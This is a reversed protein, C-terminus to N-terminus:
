GGDGPALPVQAYEAFTVAGGSMSGRMLTVHTPSWARGEHTEEGPPASPGGAVRASGLVLESRFSRRDLFFRQSAAVANVNLYIARMADVDGDLQATVEAAFTDAVRLASVHLVPATWSSAAAELAAALAAADTGDVNGFKALRVVVDEPRAAVLTATPAPAEAPARRGFLRGLFGQESAEAAVPAPALWAQAADLADQVVDPPPVVVAHLQM